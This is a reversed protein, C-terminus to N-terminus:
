PWGLQSIGRTIFFPILAEGSQYGPAEEAEM